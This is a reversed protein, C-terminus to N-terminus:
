LYRRIKDAIQRFTMPEIGAVGVGHGRGDNLQSLDLDIYTPGGEELQIPGEFDGQATRLGAWQRVENPLFTSTAFQEGVSFHYFLEPTGRYYDEKVEWEGKGTERRYLECLVGLCCYTDDVQRLRSKGQRFEDSELAVLWKTKVDENM